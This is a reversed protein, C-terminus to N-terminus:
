CVAPRQGCRYCNMMGPPLLKEEVIFQCITDAIEDRVHTFVERRQAEAAAAPDEFSWHLLRFADPFLPCSEKARDCVTIVFDFQQSLFENVHKSRHHSIDVGLERMAEVAAPNLGVPHTGASYVEFHQGGILPLLAEAMQSRASNGTCLFLVRKKM